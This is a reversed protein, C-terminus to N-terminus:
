SEYFLLLDRLLRTADTPTVLPRAKDEVCDLFHAMQHEFSAEFPEPIAVELWGGGLDPLVGPVESFLRLRSEPCISYELAGKSGSIMLKQETGHPWDHEYGPLKCGYSVMIQAVAGSAYEVTAMATDEGEMEPRARGSAHGQLSAVGGLVGGLRYLLHGACDIWAGGGTQEKKLRFDWPKFDLWQLSNATASLPEGIWGQGIIEAVRQYAPHFLGNHGVLVPVSAEEALRTIAEAEEMKVAIPKELLVPLKRDLLQRMVPLHIHHPVMVIAADLAVTELMSDLDTFGEAQWAAAREKVAEKRTDCVAVVRARGPNAQLAAYHVDAVRGLGVFGLRLESQPKDTQPKSM